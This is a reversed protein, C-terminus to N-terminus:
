KKKREEIIKLANAAEEESVRNLNYNDSWKMNFKKSSPMAESQRNEAITPKQAESAGSTTQEPMATVPPVEPVAQTNANRTIAEVLKCPKYGKARVKLFQYVTQRRVELGHEKRLYELFKSFPM